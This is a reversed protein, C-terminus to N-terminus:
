ATNAMDDAIVPQFYTPQIVLGDVQFLSTKVVEGVTLVGLQRKRKLLGACKIASPKPLPRVAFAGPVKPVKSAMGKNRASISAGWSACIIVIAQRNKIPM